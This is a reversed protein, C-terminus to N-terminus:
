RQGLDIKIVGLHNISGVLRRRQDIAVTGQGSSALAADDLQLAVKGDPNIRGHFNGALLGAPDHCTGTFTGDASVVVKMQGEGSLSHVYKGAWRGAFSSPPSSADLRLPEPTAQSFLGAWAASVGAVAILALMLTLRSLRRNSKNTM